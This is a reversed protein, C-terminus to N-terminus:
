RRETVTRLLVLIGIAREAASALPDNLSIGAGRAARNLDQMATLRDLLHNVTAGIDAALDALGPALTEGVTTEYERRLRSRTAQANQLAEQAEDARSQAAAIEAPTAAPKGGFTVRSKAIQLSRASAHAEAEASVFRQEAEALALPAPPLKLETIPANKLM